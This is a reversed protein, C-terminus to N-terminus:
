LNTPTLIKYGIINVPIGYSNNGEGNYRGKSAHITTENVYNYDRGWKNNFESHIILNGLTKFNSTNTIGTFYNRDSNSIKQTFLLLEYDNLNDNINIDQEAFSTNPNPNSWLIKQTIGGGGTTKLTGNEISLGEGVGINVQSKNIDIGVLETNTPTITPIQLSKNQLDTINNTNIQTKIEVGDIKTLKEDIEQGTFKSKYM